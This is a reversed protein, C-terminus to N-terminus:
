SAPGSPNKTSYSNFHHRNGKVKVTSVSEPETSSAKNAPDKRTFSFEPSTNELSKCLLWTQLKAFRETLRM